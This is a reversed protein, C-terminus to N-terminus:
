SEEKAFVLSGGQLDSPDGKSEFDEKQSLTGKTESHNKDSIPKDDDPPRGTLLAQFDPSELFEFAGFITSYM